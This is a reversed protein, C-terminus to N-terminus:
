EYGKANNIKGMNDYKRLLSDDKLHNFVLTKVTEKRKNSWNFYKATKEAMEAGLIEHNIYNSYGNKNNTRIFPKAIDHLLCAWLVEIPEGAKQAERVVKITHEALTFDHYKSNQNYNLQLQLEPLIYTFIKHYFLSELGKSVNDNVLIKDIEQIWREKSISLLLYSMKNIRNATKEEIQFDFTTAFRVARLIRLPDEKFRIKSNGVCKIIKKQLDEKGKYNDIIRLKEKHLRMAMANITFDRRSLDETLSSIYEVKPKRNGFEYTEKRFTTIEIMQGDIKCGLTGFRKGILYPKRGSSKIKEQIEEPKANTAFDYDKPITNLIYDRVCGGVAYVIYPYMMENIKNIDIFNKM